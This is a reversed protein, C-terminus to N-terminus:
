SQIKFTFSSIMIHSKQCCFLFHIIYFVMLAATFAEQCRLMNRYINPIFCPSLKSLKDWPSFCVNEGKFRVQSPVFQLDKFCLFELFLFVTYSFISVISLINFVRNKSNLRLLAKRDILSSPLFCFGLVINPLACIINKPTKTNWNCINLIHKLPFYFCIRHLTTIEALAVPSPLLSFTCYLRVWFEFYDFFLIIRM